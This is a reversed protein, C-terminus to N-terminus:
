MGNVFVELLLLLSAGVSGLLLIIFPGQTEQSGTQSTEQGGGQTQHTSVTTAPKKKYMYYLDNIWKDILGAQVCKWMVADFTRRYIAGKPFAWGYGGPFFEESAVHISSEGYANSYMTAVRFLMSSKYSFYAYEGALVLRILESRSHLYVNTFMQKYLPFDSTSFLHYEAGKAEYMGYKLDSKLLEQLTDINPPIFPVALTGTLSTKYYTTALVGYMLWFGLFVRGAALWPINLLTQSLFIGFVDISVSSLTYNYNSRYGLSAQVLYLIYYFLVASLVSVLMVLWVNTHLPTVLKKWLPDPRNKATIFTMPDRYYMRTFDVANRRQATVTLCLSFNTRRQQVEGVIGGWTGDEKVYAWNGDEPMVIEYTFNLTAAIVDLIFVDLSPKPQVKRSGEIEQYDIFPKFNLTTGQFRLGYFNTLQEPFIDKTSYLRPTRFLNSLKKVKPSGSHHMLQRISAQWSGRRESNELRTLAVVNEQERLREDLLVHEAEGLTRTYIIFYRTFANSLSLTTLWSLVSPEPPQTLVYTVCSYPSLREFNVNIYRLLNQTTEMDEMVVNIQSDSDTNSPNSNM